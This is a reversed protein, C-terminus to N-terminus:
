KTEDTLRTTYERQMNKRTHTDTKQSVLSIHNGADDTRRPDAGDTCNYYYQLVAPGGGAHTFTVDYVGTIPKVVVGRYYSSVGRGVWM